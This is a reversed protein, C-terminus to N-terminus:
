LMELLQSHFSCKEKAAWGYNEGLSLSTPFDKGLEFVLSLQGLSPFLGLPFRLSAEGGGGGVRGWEGEVAV